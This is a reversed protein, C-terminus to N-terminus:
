LVEALSSLGFEQGDEVVTPRCTVYWLSPSFSVHYWDVLLAFVSSFHIAVFWDAENATNSLEHFPKYVDPKTPVKLFFVGYGWFLCPESLMARCLVMNGVYSLAYFVSQLLLLVGKCHPDVYFPSKVLNPLISQSELESLITHCSM